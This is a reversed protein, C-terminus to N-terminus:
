VTQSRSLSSLCSAIQRLGLIAFGPFAKTNGINIMTQKRLFTGYLLYFNVTTFFQHYLSQESESARHTM